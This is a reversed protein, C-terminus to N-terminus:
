DWRLGWVPELLAKALRDLTGDGPGVDLADPCYLVTELAAETAATRDAMPQLHKLWMMDHDLAILETHWLTYWRRLITAHDRWGLGHNCAGLWRLRGPVLWPRTAPVLVIRDYGTGIVSWIDASDFTRFHERARDFEADSWDREDRPVFSNDDDRPQIRTLADILWDRSDADYDSTGAPMTYISAIDGLDRCTETTAILPWLGTEHYRDRLSTWLEIAPYGPEVPTTWVPDGDIDLHPIPLFTRDPHAAGLLTSPNAGRQVPAPPLRTEPEARFPGADLDRALNPGDPTTM